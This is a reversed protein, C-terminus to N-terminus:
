VNRELLLFCVDVKQTMTKLLPRGRDKNNREEVETSCIYMLVIDTLVYYWFSCIELLCVFLRFDCTKRFCHCSFVRSVPAEFARKLSALEYLM